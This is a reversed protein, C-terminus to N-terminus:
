RKIKDLINEQICKAVCYYAQPPVARGIREWQQNTTGTLVFDDPFSSLRKGEQVTLWRNKLQHIHRTNHVLTLHPRDWIDRRHNFIMVKLGYKTRLNSLYDIGAGIPIISCYKKELETMEMDPLSDVLDEIAERTTVIPHNEEPFVPEIGLDKRVGIIVVRKRNQPVGLNAFDIVKYGVSYGIENSNELASLFKSFYKEEKTLNAVNEAVFVKPCLENLMRAYELFLDDVRQKTESYVKYKGKEKGSSSIRQISFDSCPPSGEFVDLDGRRMDFRKLIDEGRLDRIDAEYVFTDPFNTRYTRAAEPIFEIASLVDYGAAKFGLCSGGCGSFSSIVRYGNKPIEQLERM